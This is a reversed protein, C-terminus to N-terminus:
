PQDGAFGGTGVGGVDVNAGDGDNSPVRSIIDSVFREYDRTQFYINGPGTFDMVFGEGSFLTSKLGGVRRTDYEVSGDWAVAHGSDITYVEGPELSVDAIGGFASVVLPGTGQTKLVSLGEGGLLTDLGGLESDIDVDVGAAVYGTQQVYMSEGQLTFMHLDGPLSPALTVTGGSDPATYVNRFFSEDGLVSDKVSELLGEDTDGAQTTIEINNTHSVLAGAESTVQEGPGLSIQAVAYAPDHDITIDM